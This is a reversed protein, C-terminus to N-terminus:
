GRIYEVFDDLANKINVFINDEEQPIEVVNGSEITIYDVQSKDLKQMGLINEAYDEINKLSNKSEIETQMRVNESNLIDVAQEKNAIETHLAANQVKGYIVAGLLVGAAMTMVIIKPASGAAEKKEKRIKIQPSKDPNTNEYKSLDYALNNSSM